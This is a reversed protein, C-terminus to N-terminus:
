AFIKSKCPHPVVVGAELLPEAGAPDPGKHAEVRAAARFGYGKSAGNSEILAANEDPQRRPGIEIGRAGLFVRVKRHHRVGGTQLGHGRAGGRTV